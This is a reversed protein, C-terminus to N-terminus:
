DKNKSNALFFLIFRLLQLASLVISAFYTMSAASLVKKAGKVEMEDLCGTDVLACLARKSANLEVPMTILSFILSTGFFAVGLWLFLYAYFGGYVAFDFIIGIFILPWVLTSMFNCVYATLTRIKIPIYNEAYQIAHGVEHAAVGLASITTSDYVQSSLTIKNTKPNYNDVLESNDSRVVQVGYVKNKELIIRCAEAGTISKSSLVTQYEKFTLNVRANMVMAFIIGPILIFGM